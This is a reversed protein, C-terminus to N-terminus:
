RALPPTPAAAFPPPSALFRALQARTPLGEQAGVGGCACAAVAHAVRLLESPSLSELLGHAIGAHFADGAGTTDVAPIAFAPSAVVGGDLWALSGGRGRTVIPLEAGRRALERVAREASGFLAQALAEPIAPHSATALLTEIGPAPADADLVCPRGVERALTVVHAALALDTADVLVVRAGAIDERSVVAAPLALREDRQWLVTREGTSADVWIWASRTPVGHARRVRELDVGADRLPALALAGADDDGVCGVFAASHGLRACGLLATAIQGGPMRRRERMRAKGGPPPAADVRAVEDLSCEGVGLVDLRPTV